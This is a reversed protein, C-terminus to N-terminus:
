HRVRVVVACIVIALLDLKVPQDQLEVELRRGHQRRHLSARYIDGQEVRGVVGAQDVVCREM